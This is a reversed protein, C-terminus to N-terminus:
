NDIRFGIVCELVDQGTFCLSYRRKWINLEMGCTTEKMVEM